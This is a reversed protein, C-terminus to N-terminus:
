PVLPTASTVGSIRSWLCPLSGSCPETYTTSFIKTKIITPSHSLIGLLGECYHSGVCRFGLYGQDGSMRLSKQPLGSWGVPAVRFDDMSGTHQGSKLDRQRASM